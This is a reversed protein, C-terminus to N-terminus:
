YQDGPLFGEDLVQELNYPCNQPFASTSIQTEDTARFKAKQYCADLVVQPYPKLSPSEAISETIRERHERLTSRWSNSRRHPQYEWKLLHLLIVKLNSRLAEKERRSLDEVEDILAELEVEDWCHAKLLQATTEAWAVFDRDYLPNM